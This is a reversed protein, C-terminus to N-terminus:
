EYLDIKNSRTYISHTYYIAIKVIKDRTNEDYPEYFGHEERVWSHNHHSLPIIPLEDVPCLVDSKFSNPNFRTYCDNILSIALKKAEDLTDVRGVRISPKDWDSM